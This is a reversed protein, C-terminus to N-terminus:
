TSKHFALLRALEDEGMTSTYPCSSCQLKWYSGKKFAKIPKLCWNCLIGEQIKM